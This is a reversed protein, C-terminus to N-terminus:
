GLDAVRWGGRTATLHITMRGGVTPHRITHYAAIVIQVPSGPAVAAAGTYALHTIAAPEYIPSSRDVTPVQAPQDLLRDAFSATCTLRITQLVSPSGRGIQYQVYARAFRNAIDFIARARPPRPPPPPRLRIAEPREAPGTAPASAAVRRAMTPLTPAPTTAVAEGLAEGGSARGSDHTSPSGCGTTAVAALGLVTAVTPRGSRRM